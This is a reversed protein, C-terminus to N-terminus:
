HDSRQDTPLTSCCRNQNRERRKKNGGFTQECSCCPPARSSSSSSNDVLLLLLQSTYRFISILSIAFGPYNIHFRPVRGLPGKAERRQCGGGGDCVSLKLLGAWGDTTPDFAEIRRERNKCLSLYCKGRGASFKAPGFWADTHDNPLFGNTWMKLAQCGHHRIQVSHDNLHSRM